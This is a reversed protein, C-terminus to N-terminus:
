ASLAESVSMSPDQVSSIKTGRMFQIRILSVGELTLAGMVKTHIHIDGHCCSGVKMIGIFLCRSITVKIQCDRGMPDGDCWMMRGWVWMVRLRKKWCGRGVGYILPILVHWRKMRCVRKWNQLRDKMCIWFRLDVGWSASYWLLMYVDWRPYVGGHNKGEIDYSSSKMRAQGFM